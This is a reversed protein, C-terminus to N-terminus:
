QCSGIARFARRYNGIAERLRHVIELGHVGRNNKAPPWPYVLKQSATDDRQGILEYRMGGEMSMVQEFRESAGYNFIIVGSSTICMEGCGTRRTEDGRLLVDESKAYSAKEILRARFTATSFEDMIAGLSDEEGEKFDAIVNIAYIGHERMLFRRAREIRSSLTRRFPHLHIAGYCYEGEASIGNFGMGYCDTIEPLAVLADNDLGEVVVLRDTFALYYKDTSIEPCDVLYLPLIDDYWDDDILNYSTIRLRQRESPEEIRREFNERWSRDSIRRKSMRAFREGADLLRSRLYVDRSATEEARIKRL